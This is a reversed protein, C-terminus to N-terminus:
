KGELSSIVRSTHFRHEVLHDLLGVLNVVDEVPKDDAITLVYEKGNTNLFFSSNAAGGEIISHDTVELKYRQALLRIEQDGLKTYKAM